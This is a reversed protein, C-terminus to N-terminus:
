LAASIEKHIPGAYAGVKSHNGKEALTDQVQLSGEACTSKLIMSRTHRDSDQLKPLGDFVAERRRREKTISTESEANNKVEGNIMDAMVM